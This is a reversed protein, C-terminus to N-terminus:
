SGLLDDFSVDIDNDENGLLDELNETKKETQQTEIGAASTKKETEDEGAGGCAVLSFALVICAFISVFKKM